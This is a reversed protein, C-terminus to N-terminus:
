LDFMQIYDKFLLDIENKNLGYESLNYAHLKDRSSVVEEEEEKNTCQKNIDVKRENNRKEKSEVNEVETDYVTSTDTSISSSSSTDTDTNVDNTAKALKVRKKNSEYIYNEIKIEIEKNYRMNLKKFIKKCTASGNHIIDNYQLHIINNEKENEKLYILAMDICKKTYLLVQQGFNVKNITWIDM